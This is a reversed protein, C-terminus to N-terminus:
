NYRDNDVRQTVQGNETKGIKQLALLERSRCFIICPRGGHRGFDLLQIAAEKKAPASARGVEGRLLSPQLLLNASACGLQIIKM